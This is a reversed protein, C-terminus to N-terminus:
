MTQYPSLRVVVVVKSNRIQKKKVILAFTEDYENLQSFPLVSSSPPPPPPPLFPM